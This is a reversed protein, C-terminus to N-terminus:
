TEMRWLGVIELLRHDLSNRMQGIYLYTSMWNELAPDMPHVLEQRSIRFPCFTVQFIQIVFSSFTYPLLSSVTLLFQLCNTPTSLLLNTSTIFFTHPNYYACNSPHLLGPTSNPFLSVLHVPALTYPVSCSFLASLTYPWWWSLNTLLTLQKYTMFSLHLLSLSSLPCSLIPWIIDCMSAIIIAMNYLCYNTTYLWGEAYIPSLM